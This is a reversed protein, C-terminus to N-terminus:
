VTAIKGLVVADPFLTNVGINFRITYKFLEDNPDYWANVTESDNLLDCGYVLNDWVSAYITGEKGILGQIERVEVNSGPFIFSKVNADQPGTYHFYNKEVMEQTFQRFDAPSLGIFARDLLEEPLAMYVAKVADYITTGKAIEVKVTSAADAGGTDAIKLLGDIGLTTDGQWVIKEVQKKIGKIVEDMIQAEFPLTEKGAGINVLSEAFKGILDRDCYEDQAKVIKTVINRNSFKTKGSATFGCASGDQLIPTVNLYNLRETSKVGLQKRMKTVSDGEVTGLVADRLIVDANQKVYAALASVDYGKAMKELTKIKNNNYGIKLIIYNNKTDTNKKYRNYKSSIRMILILICLGMYPTGMVKKSLHLGNSGTYISLGSLYAFSYIIEETLSGKIETLQRVM